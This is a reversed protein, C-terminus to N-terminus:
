DRDWHGARRRARRYVCYALGILGLAFGSIAVGLWWGNGQRELTPYFVAMIVAALGFAVLGIATVRFGDVDMAAVPAQVLFHRPPPM